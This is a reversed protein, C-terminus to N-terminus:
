GALRAEFAARHPLAMGGAADFDRAVPIELSVAGMMARGGLARALAAHQKPSELEIVCAVSSTGRNHTLKFSHVPGFPDCQELIGQTLAPFDHSEALKELLEPKMTSAM